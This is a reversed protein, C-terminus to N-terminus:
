TGHSECGNEAETWSKFSRIQDALGDTKGDFRIARDDVYCIAPPKDAATDYVAIGNHLLWDEVARKGYETRCRTSCVVIKFEKNLEDILERIGDVPPDPIVSEGKWGSKYSHIVGDFDFVVTKKEPKEIGAVFEDVPFEEGDFICGTESMCTDEYTTHLKCTQCEAKMTHKACNCVATAVALEFFPSSENRCTYFRTYGPPQPTGEIPRCYVCSECHRGFDKTMRHDRTM